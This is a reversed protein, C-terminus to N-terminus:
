DKCAHWGRRTGRAQLALTFSHMWHRSCHLRISKCCEGCSSRWDTSAPPPARLKTALMFALMWTPAGGGGVL